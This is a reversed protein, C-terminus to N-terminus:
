TAQLFREVQIIRTDFMQLLDVSVLDLEDRSLGCSVLDMGLDVPQLTECLQAKVTRDFGCRFVARVDRVFPAGDLGM